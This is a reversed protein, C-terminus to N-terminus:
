VKYKLHIIVTKSSKFKTSSLNGTFVAFNVDRLFKYTYPILKENSIAMTTNSRILRANKLALICTKQLKLVVLVKKM